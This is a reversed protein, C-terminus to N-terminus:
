VIPLGTYNEALERAAAASACVRQLQSLQLQADFDDGSRHLMSTM